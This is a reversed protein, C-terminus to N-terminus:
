QQPRAAFAPDSQSCDNLTKLGSAVISGNRDDAKEFM